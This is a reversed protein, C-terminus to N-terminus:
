PFREQCQFQPLSPHPIRLRRHRPILRRDLPFRRPTIHGNPDSQENKQATWNQTSEERKWGRRARINIMFEPVANATRSNLRIPLLM